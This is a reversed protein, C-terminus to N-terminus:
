WEIKPRNPQVLINEPPIKIAYNECYFQFGLSEALRISAINYWSTSYLPLKECKLTEEVAASVVSKGYGKGRYEDCTWVAYEWARKSITMTYSTSVPISSKFITFVRTNHKWENWYDDFSGFWDKYKVFVDKNCEKIETVEYFRCPKFTQPSNFFYPGRNWISGNVTKALSAAISLGEESFMDKTTLGDFCSKVKSRLEPSVSIICMDEKRAIWVPLLYGAFRRAERRVTTVIKIEGERLESFSAGFEILFHGDLASRIKEDLM